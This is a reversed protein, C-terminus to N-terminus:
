GADIIAALEGQDLFVGMCKPCRDLRMNAPGWVAQMDVNCRPCHGTQMDQKESIASFEASDIDGADKMAILKGLEGHELFIGLCTPCRDIALGKHIEANMNSDRCKPCNM